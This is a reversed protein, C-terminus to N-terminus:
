RITQYSVEDLKTSDMQPTRSLITASVRKIFGLISQCEYDIAFTDYDTDALVYTGTM